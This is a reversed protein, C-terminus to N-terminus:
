QQAAPRQKTPAPQLSRVSPRVSFLLDKFGSDPLEKGETKSRSLREIEATAALLKEKEGTQRYATSLGWYAEVLNPRLRIAESLYKIASSHDKRALATRGALTLIQPDEPSLQLAQNVYKQVTEVEDPTSALIARALYYFAAPDDTGLAIATELLPRAELPRRYIELIIGHFLYPLSWEPWRSQLQALKSQAEETKDLLELSVAEMLLLEPSDPVVRLAQKILNLTENFRGHKILFKTAQFYLDGRKPAAQFARNLSAAAEELRNLGDL